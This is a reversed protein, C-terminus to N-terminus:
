KDNSQVLNIIAYEILHLMYKLKFIVVASFFLYM